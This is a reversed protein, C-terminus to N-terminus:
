CVKKEMSISYGGLRFWSKKMSDREVIDKKYILKGEKYVEFNMVTEKRIEFERVKKKTNKIGLNIFMIDNSDYKYSDIKLIYKIKDKVKDVETPATLKYYNKLFFFIGVIIFIDIFTIINKKSNLNIKRLIKFM